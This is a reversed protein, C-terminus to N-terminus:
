KPVAWDQFKGNFKNWLKYDNCKRPIIRDQKSIHNVYMGLEKYNCQHNTTHSRSYIAELYIKQLETSQTISHSLISSSKRLYMVSTSIKLDRWKSAWEEVKWLELYAALCFLHLELHKIVHSISWKELVSKLNRIYQKTSWFKLTTFWPQNIFIQTTIMEFICEQQASIETFHVYTLM